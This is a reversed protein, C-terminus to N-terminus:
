GQWTARSGGHRRNAHADVMGSDAVQLARQHIKHICLALVRTEEDTLSSLVAQNIGVARPFVAEFLRLGRESLHVLARRGDHAVAERRVLKKLALERLTKSGQSRDITTRRALDSPSTPGMTALMAIFQWEQRTVGFEGECMRTVLSGSVNMFESLRFNLLDFISRPRALDPAASEKAAIAAASSVTNDRM